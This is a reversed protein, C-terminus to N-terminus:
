STLGFQERLMLVELRVHDRGVLLVEYGEVDLVRKIQLLAGNLRATAVSLVTSARVMTVEHAPATVLATLLDAIQETSIALRGALQLQSAFVPTALLEDVLAPRPAATASAASVREPEFLTPVDDANGPTQDVKASSETDTAVASLPINWWSPEVQTLPTLGTPRDGPCLVIVPVVVEAPSGGGHYGSNVPGYHIRDDVALVVSGSDTLVRPGSVLVEGEGVANLDGHARQHNYTVLPHRVIGERRDIVHGHDSTIVVIRGATRAAALLHRLHPIARLNWNADGVGVKHLMDDVYNLVAAVLPRGQTDAVANRVATALQQGATVAELQGKHFIPAPIGTPGSLSHEALLALFGAREGDAKVETLKGCLLSGRSRHTLSPLVALAGTRTTVGPAAAESWGHDVADAALETAMAMSLGDLVLLLVPQKENGRKVIPMVVRRILQEVGLVEPEATSALATAFEQDHDRRNTQATEIVRRLTDETRTTDAGRRAAAIAADAWADANVHRRTLGTIGAATPAETHMWRILRVAARYAVCTPDTDALVHRQVDQWAVEMSYLAAGIDSQGPKMVIDITAALAHVRAELGPRLQESGAALAHLGLDQVLQEARAFMQDHNSPHIVGTLVASTDDYWARLEEITIGRLHYKSEFHGLSRDAGSSGDFLGAILGLPLLDSVLDPTLLAAVPRRLRGCRQALWEAVATALDSGGETKLLRLDDGANPRVSWELVTFTDIETDYEDAIHLARQAVTTYAHDRTLVGGPAPRYEDIVALLGGALARDNGGDRVRYLAPELTAASFNDRVADWPLPSELKAGHLHALVGLGLENPDAPTLIVLWEGPKRQGIAEWVALVSHCAAVTVPVGHHSFDGGHWVPQAHMGLVGPLYRKRLASELKATVIPRTAVFLTM